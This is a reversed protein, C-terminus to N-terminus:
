VYKPTSILESEVVSPPDGTNPQGDSGHEQDGGSGKGDAGPSSGRACLEGLPSATNQSSMSADPGADPFLLDKNELTSCGNGVNAVFMKPRGSMPVSTLRKVSKSGKITVAACNMYMERNGIKNFWSWAFLAEGAPADTPITFPYSTKGTGSPCNGVYSHIVTWSSGKDFSLSVQCSGGGHFARGDITIKYEQGAVYHAVSSGQETGILNLAGKCPFNSGSADLPSIMDYDIDGNAHKNHRSRLPAPEVMEMHARSIATLDLIIAIISASFHMKFIQRTHNRYRFCHNLYPVLLSALSHLENFGNVM